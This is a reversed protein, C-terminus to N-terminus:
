AARRSSTFAFWLYIPLTLFLVTGTLLLSAFNAFRVAPSRLLKDRDILNLHLGPVSGEEADGVLIADSDDRAEVDREPQAVCWITFGVMALIQVIWFGLIAYASITLISSM